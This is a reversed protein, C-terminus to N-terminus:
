IRIALTVSNYANGFKEGIHTPDSSNRIAICMGTSCYNGHKGFLVSNICAHVVNCAFSESGQAYPNNKMIWNIVRDYEGHSACLSRYYEDRM